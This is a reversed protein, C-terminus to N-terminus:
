IKNIISDGRGTQTCRPHLAPSVLYVCRTLSGLITGTILLCFSGFMFLLLYLSLWIMLIRLSPSDPIGTVSIRLSCPMQRAMLRQHPGKISAIEASLRHFLTRPKTWPCVAMCIGCDTGNEYWYSYCKKQDLKWKMVGNYLTKEGLPIAGSPCEEVCILCQQCFSQVGIDIPDDHMLPMDTTVVSLRVGLGYKKTLLYGARSLEGLGCDVAVPVVLVQYNSFHHARASYGIQRIYEALRVATWASHAYGQATALMTPFHPATNLLELNMRFGMAIASRHESLDIPTGWPKYGPQDGGTSGVHSYIWAQRLPGVGVLDAGYVRATQKIKQNAREPTFDKKVQAPEGTVMSEVGIMDILKFQARFMPADSPNLGGLPQKVSLKTHFKEADPYETFYKKYQESDIGFSRILDQRAFLMDREDFRNIEGQIDKEYTPKEAM